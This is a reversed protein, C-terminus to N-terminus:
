TVFQVIREKMADDSLPEGARAFAAAVAVAGVLMMLEMKKM